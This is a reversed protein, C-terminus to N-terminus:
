CNDLIQKIAAKRKWPLSRPTGRLREVVTSVWAPDGLRSAEGRAVVQRLFGSLLRIERYPYRRAHHRFEAEWYRRVDSLDSMLRAPGGRSYSAGSLNAMFGVTWVFGKSNGLRTAVVEIRLDKLLTWSVPPAATGGAWHSLGGQEFRIHDGSPDGIVWSGAVLELPGLHNNM